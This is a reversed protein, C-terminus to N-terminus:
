HYKPISGEELFFFFADSVDDTERCCYDFAFKQCRLQFQTRDVLHLPMMQAVTHVGSGIMSHSHSQSCKTLNGKLM